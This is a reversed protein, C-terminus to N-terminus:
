SNPQAGLYGWEDLQEIIRAAADAPELTVTESHTQEASGIDLIDRVRSLTGGTPAPLTRARPRYATVRAVEEREAPGPVLRIDAAKARLAAALSARRLRAVSGEVSLVAPTPVDLVERRGGDLRRVVRLPASSPDVDVLGLAQAAGLHAALYAPVSGTGNDLSYDGCVVLDADDAVGAIATAVDNSAANTANIRVARHAGAALADRLVTEAEIPGVCVVTVEDTGALQLGVELAAEDAPSVGAWRADVDDGDVSVWKWCVTVRM